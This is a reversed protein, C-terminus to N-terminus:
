EGGVGFQLVRDPHEFRNRDLARYPDIVYAHGLQSSLDQISAVLEPHRNGLLVIDAKALAMSASRVIEVQPNIHSPLPASEPDFAVIEHVGAFTEAVLRSVGGRSVQTGAKYSTGLIALVPSPSQALLDTIKRITWSRAYESERLIATSFDSSLGTNHEIDRIGLVDRPINSGGIGPGASIYANAGIREDFRLSEEIDSWNARTKEAVQALTNSATLTAALVYNAALKCLEASEFSMVLVPCRFDELYWLLPDPLPTRPTSSGVTLREPYRARELGRGFILTEMIYFINKRSGLSRTFGPEVQSMIVIPVEESVTRDALRFLDRVETQDNLGDSQLVTDVAVVVLQCSLLETSDSTWILGLRNDKLLEGIEPEAPDFLGLTLADIRTPSPDLCVVEHGNEAAAVATCVGLHTM